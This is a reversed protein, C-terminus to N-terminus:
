KLLKGIYGIEGTMDHFEAIQLARELLRDRTEAEVGDLQSHKIMAVVCNRFLQAISPYLDWAFNWDTASDLRYRELILDAAEAAGLGEGAARMNIGEIEHELEFGLQGLPVSVAFYVPAKEEEVIQELLKRARIKGDGEDPVRDPRIAPNREFLAEAFPEIELLHRNIVVVDDRFGMGAQLAIPPFTDNDGNTILVAGRPLGVLMNYAYDQLPRRIMRRDFITKFIEDARKLEGRRLYISVLSTLADEYDPAIERCKVLLKEAEDTREGEVGLIKGAFALAKPNEPELEVAREAARVAAEIEGSYHYAMGLNVLAEATEGYRDIHEQWKKALAVYSAKSLGRETLKPVQQTQSRPATAAVLVFLACIAACSWIFRRM